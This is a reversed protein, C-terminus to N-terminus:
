HIVTKLDSDRHDKEDDHGKNGHMGEDIKLRCTQSM